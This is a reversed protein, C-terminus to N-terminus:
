RYQEFDLEFQQFIIKRFNNFNDTLLTVDSTLYCEYYEKINNFNMKNHFLQANNYEEDSIDKM